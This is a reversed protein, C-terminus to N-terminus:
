YRPLTFSIKTGGRLLNEAWINGRRDCIIKKVLALGLGTGGERLSYFPTFIHQLDTASIGTGRDCISVLIESQFLQWHCDITEGEPSFHIANSLLNDFVQELQFRDIAILAEQEPYQITVKKADALYQLNGISQQCVTKIDQQKLTSKNIKDRNLLHSLHANIKQIVEQMMFISEASSDDPLSLRINEALISIHTLPNRLEHGITHIIHELTELENQQQQYVRELYIYQRLLKAQLDLLDQESCSLYETCCILLYEITKSNNNLPYIYSIFDKESDFQSIKFLTSEQRELIEQQYIEVLYKFISYNKDQESFYTNTVKSHKDISCFVLTFVSPILDKIRQSLIKWFYRISISRSYNEVINM